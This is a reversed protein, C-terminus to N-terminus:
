GSAEGLDKGPFSSLATWTRRSDQGRGGMGSSLEPSYTTPPQTQLVQGRLKGRIGLWTQSHSSSQDQLIKSGYLLNGGPMRSGWSLLSPPIPFGPDRTIDLRQVSTGREDGVRSQNVSPGRARSPTKIGFGPGPTLALPQAM